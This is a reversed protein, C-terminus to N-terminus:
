KVLDKAVRECMTLFGEAACSGQSSAAKVTVESRLDILEGNLVCRSGFKTIRSRLIHTAALAKGLEIQCSDDYCAKYSDSKLSSVQDKLAREQSSRDITRVGSQTVFVRLQDGLNRVLSKDIRNKRSKANMDEVDMVALVWSKTHAAAKGPSSPPPASTTTPPPPASTTPPPPPPPPPAAVLASPDLVLRGSTTNPIQATFTANPLGSATGQYQIETTGIVKSNSVSPSSASRVGGWITDVLGALLFFGGAALLPDTDEESSAPGDFSTSDGTDVALALGMGVVLEVIGVVLMPVWGDSETTEEVEYSVSDNLPAAGLAKQEGGYTRTVQAGAPQSELRLQHTKQTRETEQSTWGFAFQTPIGCGAMSAACTLALAARLIQQLHAV